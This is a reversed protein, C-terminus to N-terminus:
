TVKSAQASFHFICLLAFICNQILTKKAIHKITNSAALQNMKMVPNCPKSKNEQTQVAKPCFHLALHSAKPQVPNKSFHLALHHMLITKEGAIPMVWSLFFIFPRSDHNSKPNALNTMHQWPHKKKSCSATVPKKFFPWPHTTQTLFHHPFFISDLWVWNTINPCFFLLTLALDM